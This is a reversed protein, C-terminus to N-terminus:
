KAITDDIKELIADRYLAMGPSRPHFTKIQRTPYWDSVHQTQMNGDKIDQTANGYSWAMPGDPEQNITISALCLWKDWPDPDSGLTEECNSADPLNIGNQMLSSIDESDSSTVANSDLSLDPWASLFFYTNPASSDPEHIGEECWRHTDFKQQVDVYYAKTSGVQSNADQVAAEIVNNLQSVLLNLETRLSTTLYVIRNFPWDSPPKYAGSWYHFSSKDCDTTDQNFFGPYGTVFLSFDSQEAKDLISRYLTSLKYRLGSEGQDNMLARAKDEADICNKRNTSGLRGVWPTIVCYWVINSFGLDNGGMTLTALNASSASAWEGIQRQLGTTTDGSCVKKEISVSDDGVHQHILGGYNHGGVRCKDTTTEPDTGMGAAFSDGFSVIGSIEFGCGEDFMIDDHRVCGSDARASVTTPPDLPIAKQGVESFFIGAAIVAWTDANNASFDANCVGDKKPNSPDACLMGKLGAYEECGRNFTGEALQKCSEWGYAYDKSQREGTPSMAFKSHTMEHVLITARTHHADKISKPPNMYRFATEEMDFFGDCINMTKKGANMYALDPKEKQCPNAGNDCTVQLGFTSSGDLMSVITEYVKSAVQAFDARNRVGKSFFTDYYGWSQVNDMAEMAMLIAFRFERLIQPKQDADCAAAGTGGWIMKPNIGSIAIDDKPACTGSPCYGRSCTFDCLNNYIEPQDPGAEGAPATQAPPQVLAGTKTCVCLNIPCYGFGCAYSCLGAVAGNGSGAVCAPPLFDSVTPVPMPHQTTDCTKSPCHGLNCAFNCLGLYNADKGEAPYGITGTSKPKDRPPGMRECTCAGVPCYGYSCTFNCLDNFDYAGKGQVCEQDALDYATHYTGGLGGRFRKGPGSAVTMDGKLIQVNVKGPNAAVSGFWLDAGIQDNKPDPRSDWDVYENNVFVASNGSQLLAMVFIRDELASAPEFEIQLQSATNVTTGAPNCSSVPNPRYWFVAIDDSMTAKGNKYLDILFPLVDRWADHPYDLAYNYLSEGIEFAAMSKGYIPGIHHSEGYDNWSIIEVFEPMPDLAFLQQWRDYWLSDGKWMWNKNYGPLNTYFWPSIAMMYPKGDLYQIYSADTYTDMTQNGWPWASWSFLGDAVGNALAVAPKAGVSSWDPVFFCNTQAKITVWDDANGPGEFTSVFPKGNHHFYASTTGYKQIMDIVVEQDWPGNGAYDFSFFLQFGVSSAATFAMEVSADNTGDKWAMNLAFADIHADQALKMESEWNSLTYNESNTVMFHAFVAKADVQHIAQLAMVVVVALWTLQSM